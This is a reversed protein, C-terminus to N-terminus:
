KSFSEITDRFAKLFEESVGRPYFLNVNLHADLKQSYPALLLITFYRKDFVQPVVAAGGYAGHRLEIECLIGDKNPGRQERPDQWEGTKLPEHVIFIRTDHEFHIKDGLLHGTVLPYYRRFLTHLQQYLPQLAPNQSSAEEAMGSSLLLTLVFNILLTMKM